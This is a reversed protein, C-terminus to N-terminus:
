RGRRTELWFAVYVAFGGLTLPQAVLSILQSWRVLTDFLGTGEFLTAGVQLYLLASIGSSLVWILASVLILWRLRRLWVDRRAGASLEKWHSAAAEYGREDDSFREVPEGDELDDMRWVGYGEDDRVIVFRENADFTEFRGGAPGSDTPDM